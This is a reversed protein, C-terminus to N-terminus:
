TVDEASENGPDPFNFFFKTSNTASKSNPDTWRKCKRLLCSSSCDAIVPVIKNINSRKVEEAMLKRYDGCTLRMVQRKKALPAKNSKLVKLSYVYDKESKHPLKPISLYMELKDICWLIEKETNLQSDDSEIAEESSDQKVSINVFSLKSKSGKPKPM